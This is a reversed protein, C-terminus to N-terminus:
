VEEIRRLPVQLAEALVRAPDNFSRGKGALDHFLLVTEFNDGRRLVAAAQRHNGKEGPYMGFAKLQRRSLAWSVIEVVEAVDILQARGHVQLIRERPDYRVLPNMRAATRNHWLCIMWFGGLILPSLLCVYVIHNSPSGQRWMFYVGSAIVFALWGIIPAVPMTGIEIRLEGNTAGETASRVTVDSTVFEYPFLVSLEDDTPRHDFVPIARPPAAKRM